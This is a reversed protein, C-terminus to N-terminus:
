NHTKMFQIYTQKCSTTYLHINICYVKTNYQITNYQIYYWHPHVLTSSYLVCKYSYLKASIVIDNTWGNVM